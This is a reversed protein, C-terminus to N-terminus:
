SLKGMRKFHAMPFHAAEIILTFSKAVSMHHLNSGSAHQLTHLFKNWERFDVVEICGLSAGFGDPPTAGEHLLFEKGEFIRWAGRIGQAGFSHTDYHLWTPTVKHYTAIGTNCMRAHAWPPRAPTLGFRVVRFVHHSGSVKLEYTPVEYLPAENDPYKVHRDYPYTLATGTRKSTITVEIANM